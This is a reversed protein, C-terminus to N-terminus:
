KGTSGIGGDRYLKCYVNDDDSLCYQVIIGQCIRSGKLLKVPMSTSNKLCAIITHPYFDADIIGVTNALTIGQKIGVSSRVFLLLTQKPELKASVQLDVSKMSYPAITVDEPLYFDYGASCSTSRRPMLLKNKTEFRM